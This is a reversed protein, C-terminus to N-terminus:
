RRDGEIPKKLERACMPEMAATMVLEWGDECKPSRAATITITTGDVSSTFLRQPPVTWLTGPSTAGPPLTQAMAPAAIVLVAITQVIRAPWMGVDCAAMLRRWKGQPLPARAFRLHDQRELEVCPGCYMRPRRKRFYCFLEKCRTCFAQTPIGPM